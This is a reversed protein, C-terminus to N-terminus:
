RFPHTLANLSQPNSNSEKSGAQLCRRVYEMHNRKWQFVLTQHRKSWKIFFQETDEKPWAQYGNDHYYINDSQYPM